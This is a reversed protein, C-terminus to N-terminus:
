HQRFGLGDADDVAVVGEARGVGRAHHGVLDPRRHVVRLLPRREEAEDAAEPAALDGQFVDILRRVKAVIGRVGALGLHLGVPQANPFLLLCPMASVVVNSFAVWTRSAKRPMLFTVRSSYKVDPCRVQWPQSDASMMFSITFAAPGRVITSPEVPQM